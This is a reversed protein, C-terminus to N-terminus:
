LTGQDLTWEGSAGDQSFGMGEVFGRVSKPTAYVADSDGAEAEVTSAVGQNVVDGLGVDTKALTVAGTKGAVSDVTNVQAADEVGDLKTKDAASQLGATSTTAADVSVKPNAADVADVKVPGTGSVSSVGTDLGTVTSELADLATQNAKSDLGAQQATSIPKDTDPTNDAQDLGVDAKQLVVDGKRGAVTRVPSSNNVREWETGNSIIWDGTVFELGAFTGPASAVYYNGQKSPTPDLAPLNASADWTGMYFVQGVISDPLQNTPVKGGADLSAAGEAAGVQSADFKTGLASQIDSIDGQVTLVDADTSDIRDSVSDIMGQVQASGSVLSGGATSGDHVRLSKTTVDITVEGAPGTYTDNQATSGRLLLVKLAM